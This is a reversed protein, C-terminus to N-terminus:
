KGHIPKAKSPEVISLIEDATTKANVGFIEVNDILVLPAYSLNLDNSLKVKAGLLQDSEDSNLCNKIEDKKIDQQSLCEDLWLRDLDGLRCKLYEWSKEPSYQEVCAYLKDEALEVKGAPSIIKNNLPDKNGVLHLSFSLDETKGKLEEIMNLISLTDPHNLFVFLDLKKPELARGWFYSVGTFAPDFYYKEQVLTTAGIFQSFKDSKEVEKSLIFAPLVKIRFLKILEVAQSEQSGLYQVQLGPFLIKLQDVIAGTQCTRCSEPIIVWAPIPIAKKDIALSEFNQSITLSQKKDNKSLEPLPSKHYVLRLIVIGLIIGLLIIVIKKM